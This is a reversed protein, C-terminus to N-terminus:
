MLAPTGHKCPDFEFARVSGFAMSNAGTESHNPDDHERQARRHSRHGEKPARLLSFELVQSQRSCSIFTVAQARFV